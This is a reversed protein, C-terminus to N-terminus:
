FLASAIFTVLCVTPGNSEPVNQLEWKKRKKKRKGEGQKM